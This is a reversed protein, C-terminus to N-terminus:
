VETLDSPVATAAICWNASQSLLEAHGFVSLAKGLIANIEGNEAMQGILIELVDADQESIPSLHQCRNRLKSASDRGRRLGRGLDFRFCLANPIL